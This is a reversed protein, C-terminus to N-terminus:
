SRKRNIFLGEEGDSEKLKVQIVDLAPVELRRGVFDAAIPLEHGGRDILVALRVVKPRGFDHLADLAARVSRGTQLVDDVLLLWTDSIDFDIETTKALKAGRRQSLDDRYFTIDLVGLDVERSKETKLRDVIRRALVEGRTRIGIVAVRRDLPMEDAVAQFLKDFADAIQQADLSKKM